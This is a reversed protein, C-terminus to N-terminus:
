RISAIIFNAREEIGAQPLELIEYGYDLYTKQLIEYTRVAEEFDQKRETDKTYIDKWPPFLFVKKNYRYQWAVAHLAEEVPVHILRSYSILDAIGRDFFGPRDPDEAASEYQAITREIMIRRYHLVDAWPLANGGSALQERIIDRAVEAYGPFGRKKLEELVSTKGAGPGGTLIYGHEKTQFNTFEM